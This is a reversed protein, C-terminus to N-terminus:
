LLHGAVKGGEEVVIRPDTLMSVLEMKTTRIPPTYVATVCSAKLEDDHAHLFVSSAAIPLRPGALDGLKAPRLGAKVYISVGGCIKDVAGGRCFHNACEYGPPSLKEAESNYLHTEPILRVDVERKHLLAGLEVKKEKSDPCVGDM